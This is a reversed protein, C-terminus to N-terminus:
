IETKSYFINLRSPSTKGDHVNKFGICEFKANSGLTSILQSVDILIEHAQTKSNWGRKNSMWLKHDDSSMLNTIPKLITFQKTPIM